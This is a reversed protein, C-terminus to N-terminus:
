AHPEVVRLRALEMTRRLWLAGLVAVLFGLFVLQALESSLTLVTALMLCYAIKTLIRAKIM